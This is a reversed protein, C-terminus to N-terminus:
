GFAKQLAERAVRNLLGLALNAPRSLFKATKGPAHRMQLDEHVIMAYPANPGGYEIEVVTARGGSVTAGGSGIGTNAVVEMKPSKVNGSAKLAGTDVPVLNQSETFVKQAVGTLAIPLTVDLRDLGRQLDRQFNASDLRISMRAM